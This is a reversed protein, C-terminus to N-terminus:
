RVPEAEAESMPTYINMYENMASDLDYLGTQIMMNISVANNYILKDPKDSLPVNVFEIVYENGDLIYTGDLVYTINITKEAYSNVLMVFDRQQQYYM